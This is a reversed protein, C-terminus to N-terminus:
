SPIIEQFHASRRSRKAKRESEIPRRQVGKKAADFYANIVPTLVRVETKRGNAGNRVNEKDQGVSPVSKAMKQQSCKVIKFKPEEIRPELITIYRVVTHAVPV